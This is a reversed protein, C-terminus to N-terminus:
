DARYKRYIEKEMYTTKSPYLLHLMKNSHRIDTGEASYM